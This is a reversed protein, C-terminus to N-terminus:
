RGDSFPDKARAKKGRDPDIPHKLQDLPTHKAKGNVIENSWNKDSSVHYLTIMKEIVEEPKLDTKGQAGQAGGKGDALQGVLESAEQPRPSKVSGKDMTMATPKPGSSKDVPPAEEDDDVQPNWCSSILNSLQSLM